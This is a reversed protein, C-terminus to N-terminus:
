KKRYQYLVLLAISIILIMLTFGPTGGSEESDEKEINLTTEFNATNGNEDTVTLTVDYKGPEDYSHTIVANSGIMGDGFDWDYSEIGVNDSSKSADFTIEKGAVADGTINVSIDPRINDEVSVLVTDSDTNNASDSVTLEVTHTGVESFSHSIVKGHYDKGDINWVYSEIEVNDSSHSGNFTIEENSSTSIDEGARAIPSTNDVVDVAMVDSDHNGATDTVVLEVEYSGLESFSYDTVAKRFEEGAIRWVYSEIYGNDTSSSGNLTITEGINVTRNEGAEVSPPTNDIVEIMVTCDDSNGATDTVTLQASYKGLQDFSISVSKRRYTKNKIIWRYSDIKGNDTSWEGTFTVEEKVSVTRNGGAKATPPTVDNVDIKKDISMYNGARDTVNLVITYRGPDEFTYDIMKGHIKSGEITWTYNNIGVNDYSDSADFTIGTDEDAENKGIIIAQPKTVDKVTITLGDTDSNGAMDFVTLNVNYTGPHSFEYSVEEGNHEEGNINWLYEVIGVNDTSNVASFLIKKDEVVTKDRGANAIPSTKDEVNVVIEDSGTNGASDKVKLTVVYSGVESLSSVVRKSYFESSDIIWTYNVIGINDHSSSGNLVFEEGVGVTINEGADATPSISDEVTVGMEDTDTYGSSDRVTLTVDYSGLASISHNVQEGYLDISGISWTYNVIVANDYSGNGNLTFVEDVGVVIDEGADAVPATIDNVTVNVSDTDSNGASDTVTLTVNYSGPDTFEYDVTQSIHDEGEITWRYEVIGVNDSSGSGNFTVTTDEDVTKDSGADANPTTKDEVTVTVSDTDYNGESDTVNLIFEYNGIESFSHILEMGYWEVGEFTWTYNTIAVNDSSGSANLTFQEGIGVSQNTGADAKPPVTDIEVTINCTDNDYNGSDDTVNLVVEYSGLEDFIHSVKEGYKLTGNIDWTYNTIVGNDSSNGGDFIVKENKSVTRDEGADATPKIAETFYKQAPDGYLNFDFKNMWSAGEWYDGCYSKAYALAKGAPKEDAILGMMYYYGLGTNDALEPIPSWTGTSYWSVRSASVTSIAAGDKLLRYGLNNDSEPYGNLCSSQYFFAPQDKELQSVERSTMFANWKMEDGDPVDDSDYDGDWYKRSVSEQNGHGWWFVSGYGNSNFEDVFNSMSIPQSYHFASTNVPNLGSREYMVEDNFGKPSLIDNYVNEPLDLGDTRLAGEGDENEYNSIAMPLIMRKKWSGHNSQYSIMDLFIQDLANYNENYVPIRGVYIEPNFDVGGTGDDDGYEGYYGDDDLDWDGSLDSYFYDTPSEEYSTNGHRPYCMMMPVDGFSDATEDVDDPDPNGVLLAYSINKSQYNNKLYTRIDIARQQGSNSGGYEDETIVIVDFGIDSLYQKYDSLNNSGNVIENTTVIAYTQQGSNSEYDYTDAVEQYNDFKEKQDSVMEYTMFDKETKEKLGYQIDVTTDENIIVKGSVPNWQLPYYNFSVITATRMKHVEIGEVRKEPYFFNRRYIGAYREDSKSVMGETVPREVPEFYYTGDLREKNNSKIDVVVSDMDAGRPLLYTYHKVPISPKSPGTGQGCNSFRLSSKFEKDVTELSGPDLSYTLKRKASDDSHNEHTFEDTESDYGVNVTLLLSTSSLLLFAILIITFLYHKKM